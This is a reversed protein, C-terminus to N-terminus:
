RMGGQRGARAAGEIASLAERGGVTRSTSKPLIGCEELAPLPPDTRLCPPLEGGHAVFAALRQLVAALEPRTVATEAGVRHTEKKVPFFGLGIARVLAAREPRGVADTAVVPVPPLPADRVEPVLSTLLAAAQARTLRPSLAARRAVEPLSQVQSELRAHEAKERFAPDKAALSAFLAAADAYRHTKMALEAVREALKSADPDLARAKVASAYADELQGRAEAVLSLVEYGAPSAPDLELLSLAVRRASEVEKAKLAREAAARRGAVLDAVLVRIRDRAHSESPVLRLVARYGELAELTRGKAFDLDAITEVAPRYAPDAKAIIELEGRAEDFRERLISLYARGTRYALSAPPGARLLKEAKALDRSRLAAIAEDLRKADRKSLVSAPQGERPSALLFAPPPTPTPGAALGTSLLIALLGLLRLPLPTV